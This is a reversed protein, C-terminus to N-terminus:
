RGVCVGRHLEIGARRGPVPDLLGTRGRLTRVPPLRRAGYFISWWHDGPRPEGYAFFPFFHFEWGPVGGRRYEHYYTNLVLQSVTSQERFRWVFPFVVTARSDDEYDDFDWWLPALVFHRHTTASTSYLLPHINFTSSTEDHSAQITPFFWM